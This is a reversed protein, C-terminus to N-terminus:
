RNKKLSKKIKKYNSTQIITGDNVIIFAAYNPFRLMMELGKEVGMVIISTSLGNAFEANDGIVSVSTIGQSPMGTKPHIIHAYRVDDIEIFKQYDGSTTVAGKRMKLVDAVDQIEFPNKIGIKWVKRNPQSGWVSLDGSANIIGATVNMNQMLEKGKEAAYGKGTAGFGIKMGPKTLFITSNVSDLIINQYGVNRIANQIAEQSPLTDMSGDFKWIRDMAAISIDFAGDSIESFYLARKTLDFVDRDVKVEQIGANRNVESIQSTPKWESILNEIRGIEDVVLDIYHNAESSDKAVITIDFQSGMLQVYRKVAIEAHVNQIFFASILSIFFLISFRKM